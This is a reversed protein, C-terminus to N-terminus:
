LDIARNVWTSAVVMGVSEYLGLAGTRSDTSLESSTAGHSRALTFADALMARALGRGRHDRRVAIRQVFGSTGSLVVNTVGVLEGSPSTVLRLNWPDFGQRGWVRAAFDDYSARERDAFELFADEVLTWVAPHDEPTADRLAYGGALPQRAIETDPPLTLDWATWRSRYGRAALLLDGPGGHVVSM